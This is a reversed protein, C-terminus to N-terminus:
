NLDQNPTMKKCKPCCVKERKSRTTWEYGCRICKTLDMLRLYISHLGLINIPLRLSKKLGKGSSSLGSGETL